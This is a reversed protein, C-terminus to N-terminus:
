EKTSASALPHDAPPAEQNRHHGRSETVYSRIYGMYATYAVLVIDTLILDTNISSTLYMIHSSRYRAVISCRWVSTDSSRDGSLQPCTRHRGHVAAASSLKQTLVIHALM